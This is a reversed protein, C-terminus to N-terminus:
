VVFGSEQMDSRNIAMRAVIEIAGPVIYVPMEGNRDVEPLMGAAGLVNAAHRVHTSVAVAPGTLHMDTAVYDLMADAVVTDANEGDSAKFNTAQNVELPHMRKGSERDVLLLHLIRRTPRDRSVEVYLTRDNADVTGLTESYPSWNSTNSM